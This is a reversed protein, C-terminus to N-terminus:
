QGEQPQQFAAHAVKGSLILDTLQSTPHYPSKSEVMKEEM